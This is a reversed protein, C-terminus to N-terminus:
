FVWGMNNMKKQEENKERFIEDNLSVSLIKM